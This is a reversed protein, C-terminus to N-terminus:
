FEMKRQEIIDEGKMSDIYKQVDFKRKAGRDNMYRVKGYISREKWARDHVGGISWAIGTYGNSDRGDLSYSDNLKVSYEMAIEPSPTWELIKKCWYMRMYSHISGKKLLEFQAANWLPDHTKGEELDEFSYLYERSDKRHANLTEKAWNPFGDFNKYNKNYYCYNDSLERRVFIQEVFDETNSGGKPVKELKILVELSSIHGFHLYPSLGSLVKKNPNNSHESYSSLSHSIFEELVGKAVKNGASPNGRYEPNKKLRLGNLLRSWNISPCDGQFSISQTDAELPSVLFNDLKKHLKPRLTYAAYEQKSSAIHVPVINRSDIVWFPKNYSSSITKQLSRKEILADFDTVIQSIKYHNLFQLFDEEKRYKIIYFPIKLNECEKQVEELGELMFQFHHCNAELYDTFLTFCIVLPQKNKRALKQAYLLGFNYHVRHERSMWYLVPEQHSNGSSLSGINYSKVIRSEM